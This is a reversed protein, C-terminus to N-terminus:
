QSHRHNACHATASQYNEFIEADTLVRPYIAIEDLGGVLFSVLDRAGFRLPATGHAPAIHYTKYLAGPSTTPGGRLVGNKYISVGAQPNTQDGPNYCAVVKCLM